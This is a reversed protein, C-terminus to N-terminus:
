AGKVKKRGIRKSLEEEPLQEQIVTEEFLSSIYEAFSETKRRRKRSSIEEPNVYELANRPCFEVCKPTGNCLDCKIVKKNAPHLSIGGVPCEIVCLKCGNCKTEDILTAGTLEDRYIADTPCVEQCVPTMCNQCTMPIYTGTDSHVIVEIASVAPNCEQEHVLSCVIECTRCGVCLEPNILLVKM